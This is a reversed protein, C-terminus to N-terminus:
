PALRPAQPAHRLGARLRQSAMALRVPLGRRAKQTLPQAEVLLGAVRGRYLKVVREILEVANEKTPQKSLALAVNSWLDDISIPRADNLPRRSRVGEREVRESTILYAARQHRTNASYGLKGNVEVAGNPLAFIHEPATSGQSTHITQCDGYALLSRGNHDLKDWAATGIRGTKTRLVLGDETVDVVELVSGNRGLSGGEVAGIAKFLRVRDGVALDMAYNRTGDTARVTRLVPAGALRVKRVAESIHHAEANTPASITPAQGTAALRERYLEAVRNVVDYYTGSVMEATGDARKLNLAEWAEGQRFLMAILRERESQQRVTTTIEPVQEAGLARRALDVISGAEISAAQKDDGLAVVSFGYRARLRLLELGQRTGLLCLEDIAVRSNETLKITGAKVADVFVSFAKVNTPEIGAEALDDAQRWALSAGWVDHGRARWAAVLPKLSTTKGAGAAAIVVGLRGGLGIRRIANLQARGHASDFRLGSHKIAHELAAEPLAGSRDTGAQKALAIFEREQAEHLATTLKMYRSGAERGWVLATPQGYQTVGEQRMLKTVANLDELGQCGYEILGRAAATRAEFHSLVSKQQLRQDLVPLAREYALRHAAEPALQPPEPGQRLLSSPPQWGIEEAQRLWDAFDAIDDKGGKQKQEAGQTAAKIRAQRQDQTLDDWAEGRKAADLRAMVEGIQSRKSFLVRVADPIARIRAAGDVEGVEFGQDRLHQALRAQYYGGVEHLFGKVANTDLSGVRGSPCFVANPILFHTHLDPDGSTGEPAYEVVGDKVTYRTRRATHHMFELWTIHGDEHDERKGIAARGIEGALHAMAERAAAVHANLIMAREAENAFAWAVSVSKDPTATFDYSGIPTSHRVEGTKPDVPLRREVAYHKGEIKEGDARRGVLLADIEAQSLLRDENIGLGQLVRPDTDPRVVAIPAELLGAAAREVLVDLRDVVRMEAEFRREEWEEDATPGAYSWHDGQWVMLPLDHAEAEEHTPPPNRRDWREMILNVGEQFSIDGEAIAQSTGLTLRDYGPQIMGRGYYLALKAEEPRLTNHMLHKTMGSAASPAGAAIKAFWFM